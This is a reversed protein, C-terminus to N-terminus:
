PIGSSAANRLAIRSSNSAEPRDRTTGASIAPNSAMAASSKEDGARYPSRAPLTLSLGFGTAAIIVFLGLCAGANVLMTGVMFRASAYGGIWQDFLDGGGLVLFVFVAVLAGIRLSAHRVRDALSTDYM